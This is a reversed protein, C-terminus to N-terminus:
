SQGSGEGGGGAWLEIDNERAFHTYEKPLSHCDPTDLSNVKPPSASETLDQLIELPLYLTGIQKVGRGAVKKHVSDWVEKADKAAQETINPAVDSTLGEVGCGFFEAAATRKGKYDIGKFGVLLTDVETLGKNARLSELADIVWQAREQPVGPAILHVKVTIEAELEDGKASGTGGAEPQSTGNIEAADSSVTHPPHSHNPPVDHKILTDPHPIIITSEPSIQFSPPSPDLASHLARHIIAPLNLIPKRPRPTRIPLSSQSSTFILISPPASTAM